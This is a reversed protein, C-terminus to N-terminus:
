TKGQAAGFIAGMVLMPDEAWEDCIWYAIEAGGSDCVRVYTSGEPSDAYTDTRLTNGSDLQLICEDGYDLHTTM